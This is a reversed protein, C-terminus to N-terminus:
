EKQLVEYQNHYRKTLCQRQTSSKVSKIKGIM